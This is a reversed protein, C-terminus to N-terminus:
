PCKSTGCPSRQMCSNTALALVDVGRLLADAGHVDALPQEVVAVVGRGHVERQDHGFRHHDLRGLGLALLREVGEGVVSM